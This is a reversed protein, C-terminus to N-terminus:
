ATTRWSSSARRGGPRPCGPPVVLRRAAYAACVQTLAAGVDAAALRRVEARYAALRECLLTVLAERGAADPRPRGSRPPRPRPRRRPACPTACAAWCSM